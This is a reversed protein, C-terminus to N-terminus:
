FPDDGREAQADEQTHKVTVEGGKISEYFTKAARYVNADEVVGDLEINWGHWQGKDNKESSTTMKYVHSFRPPQFAEGKANIMTRSAIMSNWKRSKKLQTSKMPVLATNYTGDDELIVVYHQHTEDIYEGEGGVVYEKNDNEDRKTEPRTDGPGFMDLPAGAGSGRPAWMLHKREYHCPILRVGQKGPYVTGTVTNYLDGPKADIEGAQIIPDMASLVKLFPLALDEQDMAMGAGADAEFLSADLTAVEKDTAESVEKTAM